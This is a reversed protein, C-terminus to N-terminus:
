KSSRVQRSRWIPFISPEFSSFQYKLFCVSALYATHKCSTTSAKSTSTQTASAPESAFSDKFTFRSRTFRHLANHKECTDLRGDYIVTFPPGAKNVCLFRSFEFPDDVVNHVIHPFPGPQKPQCFWVPIGAHFFDQVINPKNTIVGVCNAVSSASALGYKRPRYIELYDLLGVTELYCRQFETVGFVMQDFTTRLSGLRILVNEMDRELLLLLEHPPNKTHYTSIRISLEKKMEEFRSHRAQRLLGIGDVAGGSWVVFDCQEPNWWMLSLPDGPDM